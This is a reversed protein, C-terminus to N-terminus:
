NHFNQQNQIVISHIRAVIQSLQAYAFLFLFGEAIDNLVYSSSLLGVKM